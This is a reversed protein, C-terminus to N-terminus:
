KRDGERRYKEQIKRKGGIEYGREETVIKNGFDYRGKRGSWKGFEGWEREKKEGGLAGTEKREERLIENEARRVNLCERKRKNGTDRVRESEREREKECM